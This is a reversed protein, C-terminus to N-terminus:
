CKVGAHKSLSSVIVEREFEMWRNLAKKMQRKVLSLENLDFCSFTNIMEVFVCVGSFLGLLFDRCEFM